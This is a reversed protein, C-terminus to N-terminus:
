LLAFLSQVRGASEQLQKKESENLTIEIVKEVGNAGLIV